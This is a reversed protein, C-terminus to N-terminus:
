KYIICVLTNQEEERFLKFVGMVACLAYIYTTEEERFNSTPPDFM